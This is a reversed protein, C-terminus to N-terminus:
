NLMHKLLSQLLLYSGIMTGRTESDLPSPM